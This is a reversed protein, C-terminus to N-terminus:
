PITEQLRDPCSEAVGPGERSGVAYKVRGGNLM